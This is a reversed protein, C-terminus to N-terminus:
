EGVSERGQRDRKEKEGDREGVGEMERMRWM